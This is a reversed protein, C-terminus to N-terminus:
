SKEVNEDETWQYDMIGLPIVDVLVGYQQVNIM